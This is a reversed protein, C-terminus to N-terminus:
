NKPPNKLFILNLTPPRLNFKNLTRYQRTFTLFLVGVYDMAFFYEKKDEGSIIFASLDVSIPTEPM